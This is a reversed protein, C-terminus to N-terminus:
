NKTKRSDMANAQTINEFFIVFIYFFVRWFVQTYGPWTPCLWPLPTWLINLCFTMTYDPAVGCTRKLLAELHRWICKKGAFFLFLNNNKGTLDYNFSFLSGIQYSHQYDFLIDDYLDEKVLSSLAKLHVKKRWLFMYINLPNLNNYNEFVNM